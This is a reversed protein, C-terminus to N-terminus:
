HKIFDKTKQVVSKLKHLIKVLSINLIKFQICNSIKKIM